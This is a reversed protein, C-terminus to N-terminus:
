HPKVDRYKCCDPLQNYSKDDANLSDTDHGAKIVSQKIKEFPVVSPKYTVTLISTKKNWEVYKVGKMDAATEIRNKCQECNGKVYLTQTIVAKKDTQSKLIASLSFFLILFYNIKM